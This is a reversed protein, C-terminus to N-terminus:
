YDSEEDIEDLAFKACAMRIEAEMASEHSVHGDKVGRDGGLMKGGPGSALRRTLEEMLAHDPLDCVDAVNVTKTIVNGETEDPVGGQNEKKEEDWVKLGKIFWDLSQNTLKRDQRREREEKEGPLDPLSGLSGRRATTMNTANDAVAAKPQPAHNRKWYKVMALMQLTYFGKSIANLSVFGFGNLKTDTIVSAGEYSLFWWIPFGVWTLSTILLLKPYGHPLVGHKSGGNAYYILCLIPIQVFLLFGLVCVSPVVQWGKRTLNHLDGEALEGLFDEINNTFLPGEMQGSVYAGSVLMASTLIGTFVTVVRYCPVVPAIILILEAQMLPCTLAYGLYRFGNINNVHLWRTVSILACTASFRCITANLRRCFRFRQGLDLEHCVKWRSLVDATDIAWERLNWCVFKWISRAPNKLQQKSSIVISLYSFFVFLSLSALSELAFSPYLPGCVRMLQAHNEINSTMTDSVAVM